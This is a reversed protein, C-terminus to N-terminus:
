QKCKLDIEIQFSQGSVRESVLTFDLSVLADLFNEKVNENPGSGLVGRCSVQLCKGSNKEESGKELWILVM